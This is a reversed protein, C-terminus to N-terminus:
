QSVAETVLLSHLLRPKSTQSVLLCNLLRLNIDFGPKSVVRSVLLHDTLPPQQYAMTLAKLLWTFTRKSSVETVM